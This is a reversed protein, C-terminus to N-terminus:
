VRYKPEAKQLRGGEEDKLGPEPEEQSPGSVSSLDSWGQETM